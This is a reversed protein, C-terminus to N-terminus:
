APVVAVRSITLFSCLYLDRDFGPVPFLVSQMGSGTDVRAREDGTAVDLVVLDAHDGTVLEGSGEYLLLHSAHDQDRRWVPELSGADLGVLVGNGSDYAVAIGRELDIVPPNAILGGAKGCVEALALEGTALDVRVLHLPATAVGKGRLTGAYAESGEGDDLFWAHGGALVCDWGYGQGDLTRYRVTRDAELHLRAGDWRVVLLSTDGVVYVTDGDASLRAISPEPLVLRDVVALSGPDLVVLESPERDEARVALGPRAGSFDKTVLHGDAVTVFSNYPRPRPLERSAVPRLDVDLRHAHAGFVVHAGGEATAALGGPWVPGAPLEPSSAVPELTVPDIREVLATSPEGPTHRLLLLEGPETGHVAMTTVPAIRTTAELRTGAGTGLAGAVLQQRRPGGDEQTWGDVAV